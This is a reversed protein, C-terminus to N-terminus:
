AIRLMTMSTSLAVAAIIGGGSARGWLELSTNLSTTTVVADLVVQAFQNPVLNSIYKESGSIDSGTTTNRLKFLAADSTAVGGLGGVTVIATIKYTGIAPLLFAPNSTVFTVATYSVPLPFDTGTTSFYYGNTQTVIEGAPGQPGVSGQPGQPGTISAGPPGTVIVLKGAAITGSAGPVAQILQLFLTSTTGATSVANVLYWGSSGVFVYSGVLIAPNFETTIQINPSVTPQAFSALTVTYANNGSTGPTGPSGAPGTLGLIGDGFLRIFYCAVSEDAGRPNNPLGVALDCPLTWIVQGNVESKVVTGFFQTTFNAIQSPLSECAPTNHHGVHCPDECRHHHNNDSCSGCSM